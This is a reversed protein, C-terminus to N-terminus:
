NVLVLAQVEGQAPLRVRLREAIGRRYSAGVVVTATGNAEKNRHRAKQSVGGTEKSEADQKKQHTVWTREWACKM